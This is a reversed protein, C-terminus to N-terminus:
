RLQTLKTWLLLATTFSPTAALLLKSPLNLKWKLLGFEPLKLAVAHASQRDSASPSASDSTTTSSSHTKDANHMLIQEAQQTKEDQYWPPQRIHM